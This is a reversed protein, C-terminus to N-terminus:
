KQLSQSRAGPRVAWAYAAQDKIRPGQNGSDFAFTWAFNPKRDWYLSAQGSWYYFHQVNTFPGTNKLADGPEDIVITKNGLETYFLHGMESNTCNDNFGCVADANPLRWGTLGAFGSGDNLCAAWAIAQDWSKKGAAGADKQWSLQTETDYITGDHMDVLQAHAPVSLGVVTMALVSLLIPVRKM